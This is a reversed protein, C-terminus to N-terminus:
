VAALFMAQAVAEARSQIPEDNVKVVGDEPTHCYVYCGREDPGVNVEEAWYIRDTLPQHWPRDLYLAEHWLSDSNTFHYTVDHRPADFLNRWRSSKRANSYNFAKVFM